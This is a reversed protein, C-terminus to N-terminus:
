RPKSVWRSFIFYCLDIFSQCSPLLRVPRTVLTQDGSGLSLSFWNCLQGRVEVHVGHCAELIVFLANPTSPSARGLHRDSAETDPFGQYAHFFSLIYVRLVTHEWISHSGHRNQFVSWHVQHRVVSEQSFM